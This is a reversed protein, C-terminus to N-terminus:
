GAIETIIITAPNTGASGDVNISFDSLTGNASTRVHLQYTQQATTGPTDVALVSVPFPLWLGDNVSSNAYQVNEMVTGTTTGTIKILIDGWNEAKLRGGMEMHIIIKSNSKKPTIVGAMDTILTYTNGACHVMTGSHAIITQITHGAPFTFNSMDAVTPSGAITTVGTLTADKVTLTQDADKKEIANVKLTSM